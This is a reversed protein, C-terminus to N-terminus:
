IDTNTYFSTTSNRLLYLKLSAYAPDKVSISTINIYKHFLINGGTMFASALSCNMRTGMWSTGKSLENYQFAGSARM